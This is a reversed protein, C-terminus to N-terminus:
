PIKLFWRWAMKRDQFLKYHSKGSEVVMSCSDGPFDYKDEEMPNVLAAIPAIQSGLNSSDGDHCSAPSPGEATTARIPGEMAIIGNGSFALAIAERHWVLLAATAYLLRENATRSCDLSSDSTNRTLSQWLTPHGHNNIGSVTRTLCILSRLKTHVNM